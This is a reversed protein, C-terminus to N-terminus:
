SRLAHDPSSEKSPGCFLGTLAAFPGNADQSSRRHHHHHPDTTTLPGNSSSGRPAAYRPSTPQRKVIRSRSLPGPAPRRARRLRGQTQPWWAASVSRGTAGYPLDGSQDALDRSRWLPGQGSDLDPQALDKRALMWAHRSCRSPTPRRRAPCDARHSFVAFPSWSILMEHARGLRCVALHALM